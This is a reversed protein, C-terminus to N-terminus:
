RRSAFFEQLLAASEAALIGPTFPVQHNLAPNTLASFCTRAAGGKPEDAGYVVKAVRAQIMAGACMICPEVTVYLTTGALRYNAFHRAAARLAVIEAHATPDCDRITRNNGTAVVKNEYTMVSGIPVEGAAAAARAEDLALQMFQSDSDM